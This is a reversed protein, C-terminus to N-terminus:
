RNGMLESVAAEIERQEHIAQPNPKFLAAHTEPTFQAEGIQFRYVSGAFTGLKGLWAIEFREKTMLGGVKIDGSIIPAMWPCDAVYPLLMQPDPCDRVLDNLAFTHANAWGPTSCTCHWDPDTGHGFHHLTKVWPRDCTTAWYAFGRRKRLNQAVTTFTEIGPLQYAETYLYVDVEDGKLAEKQTWSKCEFWAGNRLELSMNGNRPDNHLSKHKLGLGGRASLLFDILYTFEHESTKYELGVFCVNAPRISSGLCAFGTAWAAMDYSKGIKYAGLNDIQHAVGGPRPLVAYPHVTAETPRQPHPVSIPMQAPYMGQNMPLVRPGLIYGESALQVEAQHKFPAYGIQDYVRRRWERVLGDRLRPTLPPPM